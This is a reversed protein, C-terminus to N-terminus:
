DQAGVLCHQNEHKLRRARDKLSLYVHKPLRGRALSLKESVKEVGKARREHAEVTQDRRKKRKEGSPKGEMRSLVAVSDGDNDWASEEFLDMM